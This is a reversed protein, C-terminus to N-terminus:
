KGKGDNKEEMWGTLVLNLVHVGYVNFGLAALLLLFGIASFFVNKDFARALLFFFSSVSLFRVSWLCSNMFFCRM